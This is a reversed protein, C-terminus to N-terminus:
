ALRLAVGGSLASTGGSHVRSKDFFLLFFCETPFGSGATDKDSNASNLITHESSTSILSMKVQTKPRFNEWSAGAWTTNTGAQGMEEIVHDLGNDAAVSRPTELHWNQISADSGNTM